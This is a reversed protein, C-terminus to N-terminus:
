GLEQERRFGYQEILMAENAGSVNRSVFWATRRLSEPTFGRGTERLMMKKFAEYFRQGYASGDKERFIYGDE